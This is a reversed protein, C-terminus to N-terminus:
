GCFEKTDKHQSVGDKEEERETDIMKQAMAAVQILECAGSIAYKRLVAAHFGAEKADDEKVANWMLELSDRLGDMEYCAEEYEELIVAYGEHASAHTAGFKESAMALEKQCLGEVEAMTRKYSM